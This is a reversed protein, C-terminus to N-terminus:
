LTEDFGELEIPQSVLGRGPLSLSSETGTEAAVVRTVEVEVERTVEVVEASGCSVVSVISLSLLALRVVKMLDFM